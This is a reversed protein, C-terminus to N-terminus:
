SIYITVVFDAFQVFFTISRQGKVESRQGMGGAVVVGCGRWGGV